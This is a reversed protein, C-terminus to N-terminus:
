IISTTVRMGQDARGQLASDRGGEPRLGGGVQGVRQCQERRRRECDAAPAGRRGGGSNAQRDSAFREVARRVAWGSRVCLSQDGSDTIRRAAQGQQLRGATPRRRPLKTREGGRTRKSRGGERRRKRSSTATICYLKGGHAAWSRVSQNSAAAVAHARPPARGDCERCM